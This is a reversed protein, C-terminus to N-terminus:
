QKRAFFLIRAEENVVFTATTRDYILCLFAEINDMDTGEISNLRMSFRTFVDTVDPFVKWIQWASKRGKGRFATVIDCGSVAHFFHLAAVRAGLRKPIDHVQFWRFDKNRGLGIWLKDVGLREFAAIGLVVVENDNSSLIVKKCGAHKDHVFM